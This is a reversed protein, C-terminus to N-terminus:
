SVGVEVDVLDDGDLGHPQRQARREGLDGVDREDDHPLTLVVQGALDRHVLRGAVGLALQVQVADVLAVADQDDVVHM